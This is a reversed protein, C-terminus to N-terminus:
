IIDAFQNEVRRFYFLGLLLLGITVPLGVALLALPPDVTGTAPLSTSVVTSMDELVRVSFQQGPEAVAPITLSGLPTEVPNPQMHNHLLCWRFMEVIGSMPNLGYLYRWIGWREPLRSFPFSVSVFMWVQVLFPVINRIDRYRVNLAALLLSVGLATAGTLVVLLPLFLSTAAPMIRYFALLILMVGFGLLFDALGVGVTSMPLLLRPFYIKTLMNSNQVLSNSALTVMSAFFKWIVLGALYFAWPPLGDTQMRALWSFIVTFVVTMLVPDIVAWTFGLLAQKYRVKLDRWAFFYLLERYEWLESLNLRMWGGPPRILTLTNQANEASM